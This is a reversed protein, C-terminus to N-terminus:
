YVTYIYICRIIVKDGTAMEEPVHINFQSLRSLAMTITGATNVTWDETPISELLDIVGPLVTVGETEKALDGEFKNVYEVTALEPTWRELTEITRRGHSTALIQLFSLVTFFFFDLKLECQFQVQDADLNHQKAFETWYKVVLPTTDILTGDLDFIFAKSSLTKPTM